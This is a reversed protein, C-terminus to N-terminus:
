QWASAADLARLVKPKKRYKERLKSEDLSLGACNYKELAALIQRKREESYPEEGSFHWCNFARSIFGAVEQPQGKKLAEIDTQDEAHGISAVTIALLLLPIALRSTPPKMMLEAM